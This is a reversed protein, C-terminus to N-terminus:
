ITSLGKRNALPGVYMSEAQATATLESARVYARVCRGWILTVDAAQAAGPAACAVVFLMSKAPSMINYPSVRACQEANWPRGSTLDSCALTSIAVHEGPADARAFPPSRKARARVLLRPPASSHLEAGGTMM